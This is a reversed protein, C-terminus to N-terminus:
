NCLLLEEDQLAQVFLSLNREKMWNEDGQMFYIEDEFTV